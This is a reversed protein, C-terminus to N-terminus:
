RRALLTAGVALLAAGLVALETTFRERTDRNERRDPLALVAAEAPQAGDPAPSETPEVRFEAGGWWQVCTSAAGGPGTWELVFPGRVPPVPVAYALAGDDGVRLEARVDGPGRIQVSAGECHPPLRPLLPAGARVVPPLLPPRGIWELANRVLVPFGAELPLTTADARFGFLVGRAGLGASERALAVTGAASGVLATDDARADLVVARDIRLPSLDVGYLVPHAGLSWLLPNAVVADGPREAGPLSPSLFAIFPLGEPLADPRVGDLVVADLGAFAEPPPDPRLLVTGTPDVREPLVRLAEVLFPSPRGDRALVGIRWPRRARVETAAVDDPAFADDPLLRLTLVRTSTVAPLEVSVLTAPGESFAVPTEGLLAGDLFTALTRDRPPGDTTRVLVQLRRTDEADRTLEAIAANGRGDGAVLGVHETWPPPAAGSRARAQERRVLAAAGIRDTLVLVDTPAASRLRVAAEALDLTHALRGPRLSTVARALAAEIHERSTTPPAAVYPAGDDVFLTVDDGPGLRELSARAAARLREFRLAGDDATANTTVSADLVIVLRGSPAAPAGTVPSALALSLTAAALAVFLLALADRLRRFGRRGVGAGAVARWPALSSVQVRRRRRFRFHLLVIPALLVLAWLAEAREFTM